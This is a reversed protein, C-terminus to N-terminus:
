CGATLLAEKIDNYTEQVAIERGSLWIMAKTGVPDSHIPQRIGQIWSTLLLVKRSDLDTLELYKKM